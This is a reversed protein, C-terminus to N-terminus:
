SLQELSYKVLNWFQRKLIKELGSKESEKEFAEEAELLFNSIATESLPLHAGILRNELDINRFAFSGTMALRLDSIQNKQSNALFTFSASEESLTASPGLRKFVSVEWEELSIRVKSLLAKEPFREFRTISEFKTENESKIELNADLALLPAYLSGYIGKQCINGGITAINRVAPNAITKIAEFITAPLNAKGLDEIESLTVSSGFDIYREHKDIIKLESIDRVSISKDPLEKEVFSTCGSVVTLDSITKLQYFVDSLNKASYFNKSSGM